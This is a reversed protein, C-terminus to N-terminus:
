YSKNPSAGICVYAVAWFRGSVGIPIVPITSSLSKM